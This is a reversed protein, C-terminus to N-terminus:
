NRRWTHYFSKEDDLQMAFPIHKCYIFGHYTVSALITLFESLAASGGASTTTHKALGLWATVVAEYHSQGPECTQFALALGDPRGTFIPDLYISDFRIFYYREIKM